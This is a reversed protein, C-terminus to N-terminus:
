PREEGRGSLAVAAFVALALVAVVGLALPQVAPETVPWRDTFPRVPPPALLRLAVAALLGVPVGVLVPALASWRGATRLAARGVGQRRLALREAARQRRDVAAVVAATVGGLLLIAAAGALGGLLILAPALRGARGTAKAVTDDGVVTLGAARLREVTRDTAAPGLWVEPRDGSGGARGAAAAIRQAYDLDVVIGETGGRPVTAVPRPALPVTAGFIMVVPDEHAPLAAGSVLAPLPVPTNVAYLRSDIPSTSMPAADLLRLGGGSQDVQIGSVAQGLTTRWRAPDGFAGADVVARGGATLERLEVPGHDAEIADVRCGRDCPPVAVTRASPQPDVPGFEAVVQEGTAAVSLVVRIVSGEGGATLTLATGGFELAEPATGRLDEAPQGTVAAFRASDVAVVPASGAAGTVVVAMAERGSPDAARVAALLRPPAVPAVRLVRDAGLEVAARESRAAAAGAWDQAALAAVCTAAALVPVIRYATRRRGLTLGAIGGAVRGSALANRGALGAAALLARTALVGVGVALLLPAAQSLGFGTDRRVDAAPETAVQFFAAVALALACVEVTAAALPRRPLVVRLLDAVRRQTAAWDAAVVIVVAAGLLVWLEIPPRQGLGYAVALPVAAGAALPILSQGATAALARWRPLGRIALRAADGRREAAAYAAAVAIALAGFLLVQLEAIRIGRLTARRDTALAAALAPAGSYVQPFAGQLHVLEASLEEPADFAEPRLLADVTAVVSVKARAITGLTTFAAPGSQDSWYWGTPDAAQFVGTVTLEVPAATLGAEHRVEAGPGVGLQRALDAGLMVEGDAAPCSGATLTVNRCVDDLVRLEVSQKRDGAHLGGALRVGTIMRETNASTLVDGSVLQRFRELTSGQSPGLDVPGRVGLTRQTEGAADIRQRTATHEATAAGWGAALAAIVTIATLLAMVLAQPRRARLAGSILGLM